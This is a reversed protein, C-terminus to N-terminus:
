AETERDAQVMIFATRGPVDTAAWGHWAGLQIVIDGPDLVREGDDLILRKTGILQIAYDVTETQHM